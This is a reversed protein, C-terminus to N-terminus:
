NGLKYAQRCAKASPRGYIVRLSQRYQDLETKGNEVYKASDLLGANRLIDIQDRLLLSTADLVCLGAVLREENSWSRQSGRIYANLLNNYNIDDGIKNVDELTLGGRDSQIDRYGQVARANVQKRISLGIDNNYFRTIFIEMERTANIDQSRLQAFATNPLTFPATSAVVGNFFARRTM